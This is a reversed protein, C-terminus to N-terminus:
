SNAPVDRNRYVFGFFGLALALVAHLGIDAGGIPVLQFMEPDVFALLTLVAYIIAAIRCYSKAGSWTRSALLGWVGFALHVINHLLNVPFMGLLKPATEMDADMSTGGDLLLGLVGVLLFVVGFVLAVKQTTTRM